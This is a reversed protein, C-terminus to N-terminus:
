GRRRRNSGTLLGLLVAGAMIAGAHERVLEPLARTISALEPIPNAHEPTRKARPLRFLLACAGALLLLVAGVIAPAAAPGITRGVYIWLAALLCGIAALAFLAMLFAVVFYLLGRAAANKAQQAAVARLILSLALDLM